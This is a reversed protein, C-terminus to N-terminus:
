SRHGLLWGSLAFHFYHFSTASEALRKPSNVSNPSNFMTLPRLLADNPPKHTRVIQIPALRVLIQQGHSLRGREVMDMGLGDPSPDSLAQDRRNAHARESPDPKPSRYQAPEEVARVCLGCL